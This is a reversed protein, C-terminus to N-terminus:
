KKFFRKLIDSAACDYWRDKALNILINKVKDKKEEIKLKLITECAHLRVEKDTDELGKDLTLFVLESKSNVEALSIMTFIRVVRESDNFAACIIPVTVDAQKEGMIGLGYISSARVGLDKSNALERLYPIAKEGIKGLLIGSYDSLCPNKITKCLTTIGEEEIGIKELARFLAHHKYCHADNPNPRDEELVKLIFPIAIKPPPEIKTLAIGVEIILEDKEFKYNQLLNCLPEIPVEFKKGIEGIARLAYKKCPIDSEESQLIKYIKPIFFPLDKHEHLKEGEMVLDSIIQIGQKREKLLTSDLLQSCKKIIDVKKAPFDESNGDCYVFM